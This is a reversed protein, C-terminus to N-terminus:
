RNGRGGGNGNLARKVDDIEFGREGLWNVFPSLELVPNIAPSMDFTQGVLKGFTREELYIRADIPNRYTEVDDTQVILRKGGALVVLCHTARARAEDDLGEMSVNDLRLLRTISVGFGLDLTAELVNPAHVRVTRAAFLNSEASESM